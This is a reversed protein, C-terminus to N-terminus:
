ESREEDVFAASSLRRQSISQSYKDTILPTDSKEGDCGEYPPPTGSAQGMDAGNRPVTLEMGGARDLARSSRKIEGGRRVNRRVCLSSCYLTAMNASDFWLYANNNIGIVMMGSALLMSAGGTIFSIMAPPFPLENSPTEVWSTLFALYLVPFCLLPLFFALLELALAKSGTRGLEDSPPLEFPLRRTTM